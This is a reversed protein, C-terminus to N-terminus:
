ENLIGAKRASEIFNQIDAKATEEDIDYTSLINELIKDADTGKEILKWIFLGTDNLTILSHFEDAMDDIAVIVYKDGFKRVLLGEKSKIM